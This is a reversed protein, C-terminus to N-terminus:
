GDPPDEAAPAVSADAKMATQLDQADFADGLRRRMLYGGWFGFPVAVLIVVARSAIAVLIGVNKDLAMLPSVLIIVFEYVGVGSPLIGQILALRAFVGILLGHSWPMDISLARFMLAARLADVSLLVVNMALIGVLTSKNQVLLRLGLASRALWKRFGPGAEPQEPKLAIIILLVSLPAFTTILLARQLKDLHRVGTFDLSELLILGAVSAVVAALLGQALM